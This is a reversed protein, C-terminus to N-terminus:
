DNWNNTLYKLTSMDEELRTATCTIYGIRYGENFMTRLAERLEDATINEKGKFSDLCTEIIEQPTDLDLTKCM